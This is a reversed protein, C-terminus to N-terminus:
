TLAWVLFELIAWWALVTFTVAGLCGWESM